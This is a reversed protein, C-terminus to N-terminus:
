RCIAQWDKPAIEVPGSADQFEPPIVPAGHGPAPLGFFEWHWPEPLGGDPM